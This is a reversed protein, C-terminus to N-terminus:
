GPVSIVFVDADEDRVGLWFQSVVTLAENEWCHWIHPGAMNCLGHQSVRQRECCVPPCVLYAQLSTREPDQLSQIGPTPLRLCGLLPAPCPECLVLPVWAPCRAPPLWGGLGGSVAAGLSIWACGGLPLARVAFGHGGARPKM